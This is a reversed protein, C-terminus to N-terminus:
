CNCPRDNENTLAGRALDPRLDATIFTSLQSVVAELQAMRADFGGGEVPGGPLAPGGEVPTKPDPIEFQKQEIEKM